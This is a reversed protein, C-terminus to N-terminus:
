NKFDLQNRLPDKPSINMVHRPEAKCLTLGHLDPPSTQAQNVDLCIVSMMLSLNLCFFNCVDKTFCCRFLADKVLVLIYILLCERM